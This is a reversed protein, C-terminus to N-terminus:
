ESIISFFFAKRESQFIILLAALWDATLSVSFSKSYYINQKEAEIVTVLVNLM